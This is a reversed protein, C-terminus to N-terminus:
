SRIGTMRSSASQDFHSPSSGAVFSSSTASSRGHGFSQNLIHGTSLFTPLTRLLPASSANGTQDLCVRTSLGHGYISVAPIQSKYLSYKTPLTESPLECCNLVKIALEIGCSM